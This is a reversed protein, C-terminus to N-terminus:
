LPQRYAGRPFWYEQWGSKKDPYYSHWTYPPIILMTGGKIEVRKEPSEHYWGRGKSIYILQYNDLV